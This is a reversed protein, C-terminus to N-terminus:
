DLEKGPPKRTRTPNAPFSSLSSLPNRFTRSPTTPRKRFISPFSNSEFCLSCEYIFAGTTNFTPLTPQRSPPPPALFHVRPQFRELRQPDSTQAHVCGDPRGFSKAACPPPSCCQRARFIERALARTCILYEFLEHCRSGRTM